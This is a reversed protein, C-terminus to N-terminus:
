KSLSCAPRFGQCTNYWRMGPKCRGRYASRCNDPISDLDGGRYVRFESDGDEWASGDEPAGEYNDHWIDQCYEYVNGHMDHLGFANPRYSMVPAVWEHGDYHNEDQGAYDEIWNTGCVGITQDRYNCYRYLETDSNGFCFRGKEGGRCAYEWESETPLRLGAKQCWATCDNWSVNDRVANIPLDRRFNCYPDEEEFSYWAERTCETRCILFSNINVTHVPKEGAYGSDYGMQFSGGPILVFELGTKQHKYIKVTNTQGGCSFTEEKLFEFCPIHEEITPEAKGEIVQDVDVNDSNVCSVSLFALISLLV